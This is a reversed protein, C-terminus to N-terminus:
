DCAEVGGAAGCFEVGDLGEAVFLPRAKLVAMYPRLVAAGWARLGCFHKTCDAKGEQGESGTLRCGLM